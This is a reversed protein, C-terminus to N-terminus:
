TDDEPTHTKGSVIDRVTQEGLGYLEAVEAVPRQKDRVLTIVAKRVLASTGSRARVAIDRNNDAVTGRELHYPNCCVWGHEEYHRGPGADCKHRAVERPLLPGYICEFAQTYAARKQGNITFSPIGKNTYGGKWPWCKSRDGSCMDIVRFVSHPHNRKM